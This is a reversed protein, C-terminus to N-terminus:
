ARRQVGAQGTSKTDVFILMVGGAIFLILVSLIGLRPSGSLAGVSGVLLPGVVAAFKGLMNYFGFFEAAKDSPILRAYLARSLSQIGGQVLGIMAALVFFEWSQTMTAGWVTVVIYIGIAVYIASKTGIWTGLYGFLIAAPFGIFQTILLAIILADRNFGL